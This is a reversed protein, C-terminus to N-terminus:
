FKFTGKYGSNLSAFYVVQVLVWQEPEARTTKVSFSVTENATDDLNGDRAYEAGQTGNADSKFALLDFDTAPDPVPGYDSITVRATKTLVGDADEDPVPNTVKVLTTDCYSRADTTCTGPAAYSGGNGETIDFYNVNAGIAQAGDWTITQGANASLTRAPAAHASGALLVTAAATLALIRSVNM